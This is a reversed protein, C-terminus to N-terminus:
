EICQSRGQRIKGRKRQHYADTHTKGAKNTRSLLARQTNQGRRTSDTLARYADYGETENDVCIRHASLLSHMSHHVHSRLPPRKRGGVRRVSQTHANHRQIQLSNM